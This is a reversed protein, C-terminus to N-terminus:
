PGFDKARNRWYSRKWADFAQRNIGSPISNPNIHLVKTNKQHFDRTVEAIASDNTQIMHHLNVSKGDTGIPAVGEEMRQVNTRGGNDIRQPDIIDDRQYVKVGKFETAKTWYKRAEGVVEAREEHLERADKDSDSSEGDHGEPKGDGHGGAVEQAEPQPGLEIHATGSTSAQPGGGDHGDGHGGCGNGEKIIKAIIGAGVAVATVGGATTLGIM